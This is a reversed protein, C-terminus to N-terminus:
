NEVRVEALKFGVRLSSLQWDQYKTFDLQNLNKLPLRRGRALGKDFAKLDSIAFRFKPPYILLLVLKFLWIHWRKTSLDNGMTFGIVYAEDSASFGRGLLLHLYDHQRLHIKGPLAFLSDPNEVLWVVFPIEDPCDGSLLAYAQALTLQALSQPLDGHLEVLPQRDSPQNYTM